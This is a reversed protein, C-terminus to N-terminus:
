KAQKSNRRKDDYKLLVEMVMKYDDLVIKKLRDDMHFKLVAPGHCTRLKNRSGCPCVAHGRYPSTVISRMLKVIKPTDIEDFIDGYTQLIGELGHGREGFPFKGYRKYYEYSFFYIEVYESMWMSLSFGDVFRIRITTDTELCLEGDPYRHPYSEEVCNGMDIIYPLENSALPIIIKVEYKKCLTFGKSVRNVFINGALTTQSENAVILKLGSYLQLLESVQQMGTEIDFIM